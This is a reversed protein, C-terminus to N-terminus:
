SFSSEAVSAGYVGGGEGRNVSLEGGVEWGIKTIDDGRRGKKLNETKM